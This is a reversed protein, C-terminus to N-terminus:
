AARLAPLVKEALLSQNRAVYERPCSSALVISRAGAALYERLRTVCDDPNGAVAYRSRSNKRRRRRYHCDTSPSDCQRKARAHGRNITRPSGETM